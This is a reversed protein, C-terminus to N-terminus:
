PLYFLQSRLRRLLAAAADPHGSNSSLIFYMSAGPGNLYPPPANVEVSADIGAARLECCAWVVFELSAYGEPTPSPSCSLIVSWPELRKQTNIFGGCSGTTAIGPFENIAQCLASMALDPAAMGPAVFPGTDVRRSGHAPRRHHHAIGADRGGPQNLSLRRLSRSNSM